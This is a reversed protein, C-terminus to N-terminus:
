RPRCPSRSQAVTRRPSEVRLAELEADLADRRALLRAAREEAPMRQFDEHADPQHCGAGHRSGGRMMLLMSIPCALALGLPLLTELQM